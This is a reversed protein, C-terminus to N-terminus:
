LKKEEKWVNLITMIWTKDCKSNRLKTVIKAKSNQWLKIKQTEDCNSNKPKLMIQTKLQIVIKTKSQWCLKLNQTGDCNPTKEDCNSNKLKM